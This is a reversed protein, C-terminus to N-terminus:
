LFEKIIQKANLMVNHKPCFGIYYAKSIIIVDIM